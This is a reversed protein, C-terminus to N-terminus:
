SCGSDHAFHVRASECVGYAVEDISLGDTKIELDAVARYRPERERLMNDITARPNETKLLPRHNNTSVRRFIADASARLWICYGSEDLIKRNEDRMVIGGGTSIVQDIGAAASNLAKTELDRFAPEGREEFITPISKGAMREIVEDTDVFQFGLSDAIKRGVSTKGTGMYGVLIVNRRETDQNQETDNGHM